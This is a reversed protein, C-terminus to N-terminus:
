DLPQWITARVEGFERALRTWSLGGDTSRFIQGLNSCVFMLSPDAAHTAITWPTSNLAGPLNHTVTECCYPLRSVSSRNRRLTVVAVAACSVRGGAGSARVFACASRAAARSARFFNSSEHGFTGTM